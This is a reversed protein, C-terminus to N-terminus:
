KNGETIFIGADLQTYNDLVSAQTRGSVACGSLSLGLSIFVFCIVFHKILKRNQQSQKFKEM